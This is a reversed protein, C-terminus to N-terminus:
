RADVSQLPLDSGRAPRTHPPSRDLQRLAQLEDQIEAAMDALRAQHAADAQNGDAQVEALADRLQQAAQDDSRTFMASAIFYTLPLTVLSWLAFSLPLWLVVRFAAANAIQELAPYNIRESAQTLSHPEPPKPPEPHSVVRSGIRPNMGVIPKRDFRMIVGGKMSPVWRSGAM